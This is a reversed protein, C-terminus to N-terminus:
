KSNKEETEEIMGDIVTRTLLLMYFINLAAIGFLVFGVLNTIDISNLDGSDPWLAIYLEDGYKHVILTFFVFSIISFMCCYCGVRLYSKLMHTGRQQSTEDIYEHLNKLYSSNRLFAITAIYFIFTVFFFMAFIQLTTATLTIGLFPIIIISVLPILFSILIHITKM